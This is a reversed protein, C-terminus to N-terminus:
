VLFGAPSGHDHQRDMGGARRDSDLISNCSISEHVDGGKSCSGRLVSKGRRFAGHSPYPTLGSCIHLPVINLRRAASERMPVGGQASRRHFHRGGGGQPGRQGGAHPIGRQRRAGQMEEFPKRRLFGECLKPTLELFEYIGTRGHYGIGRCKDCGVAQYFTADEPIAYGGCDALLRVQDMIEATISAPTKCQPCLTRILRMAIIRPNAKLLMVNLSQQQDVPFVDVIRELVRVTSDVHIPVFVLHGTGAATIAAAITELDRMEGIFIIDPDHRLFSRLAGAFNVGPRCELQTVWPLHSEVPDEISVTKVLPGAIERLMSYILTTKGCGTPGATIILGERESIWRRVREVDEPFLGLRDLQFQDISADVRLRGTLADGYLGPMISIRAEIEGADDVLDLRADVFPRDLLESRTLQRCRLVLAQYLRIPLRRIEHLQGDIRYRLLGFTRGEEKFPELHLDSSGLSVALRAMRTIIQTTKEEWPDGGNARLAPAPTGLKSLEEEFFALEGDIVEMPVTSLTFAVPGRALYTDLDSQRFRWQRGVKSAKVDGRDLMRYLTPKSVSLYEAAEDLTLLEDAGVVATASNATRDHEM